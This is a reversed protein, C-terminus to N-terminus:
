SEDDFRWVKYIFDSLYDERDSDAWTDDFSDYVKDSTSYGVTNFADLTFSIVEKVTMEKLKVQPCVTKFQEYMFDSERM